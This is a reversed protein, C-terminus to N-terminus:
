FQEIIFIKSGFAIFMCGALIEFINNFKKTYSTVKDSSIALAVTFFWIFGLVVMELWYIFKIEWLQNFNVVVSMISLFFTFALPNLFEVLFGELFYNKKQSNIQTLASVKKKSKLKKSLLIQAGLYILYTSCMIKLSYFFVSNNEIFSLGILILGSQVSIGFVVGLCAKVSALRSYLVGNGIILTISPGPMMIAFFYTIGVEM